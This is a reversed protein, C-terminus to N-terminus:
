DTGDTAGEEPRSTKWAIWARALGMPDSAELFGEHDQMIAATLLREADRLLQPATAPPATSARHFALVLAQVEEPYERPEM